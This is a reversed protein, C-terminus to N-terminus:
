KGKKLKKNIDKIKMLLQKREKKLKEEESLYILHKGCMSCVEAYHAYLVYGNIHEVFHTESHDCELQKLRRNIEKFPDNKRKFKFM